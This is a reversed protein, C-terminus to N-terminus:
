KTYREDWYSAKGYQAMEKKQPKEFHTSVVLSFELTLFVKSQIFAVFRLNASKINRVTKCKKEFFFFFNRFERFVSFGFVISKVPNESSKWIQCNETRTM